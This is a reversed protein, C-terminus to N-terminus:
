RKPNLIKLKGNVFHGKSTKGNVDRILHSPDQPDSRFLPISRGSAIAICQKRSGAFKEGSAADAIWGIALGGTLSQFQAVDPSGWASL